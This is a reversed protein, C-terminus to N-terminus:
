KRTDADIVVKSPDQKQQQQKAPQKQQGPTAAKKKAKFKEKLKDFDITIDIILAIVTIINQFIGFKESIDEDELSKKDLYNTVMKTTKRKLAHNLPKNHISDKAYELAEVIDAATDKNNTSGSRAKTTESEQDGKLIIKILDDKPKSKLTGFALKSVNNDVIIQALQKGDYKEKIFTPRKRCEEKFAEFSFEKDM